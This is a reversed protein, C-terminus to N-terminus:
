EYRLAETVQVSAARRAPLAAALSAFLVTAPLLLLLWGVPPMTGVDGVNTQRGLQEFLLRTVLLGLPIGAVAALLALLGSGSLVTTMVQAPTLGIAKVIGLDRWRERVGLLATTVLNVLGILLLVANLGILIGRIPALDDAGDDYTAVPVPEGPVPLPTSMITMRLTDADAGPTLRLGYVTPLADPDVQRRLTELSFMVTRGDEEGDNYRGVVRLTLPRSDATLSLEDGIELGLLNALGHGVIAEGPAQFLRGERIRYGLQDYPEDLARAVISDARGPARVDLDSRAYVGTVEPFGALVTRMETDPQEGRFVELPFASGFFAPDDSLDELTAEMGLSFVATMVTLALAAVTLLARVPRAFADKSGLVVPVPLRLHAAIRGPVSPRRQVRAFGTTIAQVVPTRGAQWAPVLTFLTVLAGVGAFVGLATAPDFASPATTNFLEATEDLFGPALLAALAIGPLTAVLALALNEALFLGVVQGPTFGIAKLIGIERFQALVRGSIANAIVFGCAGLAFVSFVGLLLAYIDNEETLDARVETWDDTGLLAGPPYLRFARETFSGSASGDALRVGFVRRLEEPRPEIGALTAPTVYALAPTWQPYPGYGVNLALGVVELTAPGGPTAVQVQDGPRVRRQRAFTRDLVVEGAAGEALWRGDTVLPRGIEPLAEMGFLRVGEKNIRPLGPLGPTVIESEAVSYPGATGTVGELAAIRGWDVDQGGFFWIHAGNAEEFAREYPQTTGRRVTVALTLATTAALLMVVILAAQLRHGRLDALAKRLMARM